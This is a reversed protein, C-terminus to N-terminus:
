EQERPKSVHVITFCKIARIQFKCYTTLGLLCALLCAFMCVCKHLAALTPSLEPEGGIFLKYQVMCKM